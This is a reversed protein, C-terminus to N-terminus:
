RRKEDVPLGERAINVQKQLRRPTLTNFPNIHGCRTSLSYGRWHLIWLHYIQWIPCMVDHCM